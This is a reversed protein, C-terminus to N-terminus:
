PVDRRSRLHPHQELLKAHAEALKASTKALADPSVDAVEELMRKRSKMPRKEFAQLHRAEANTIVGAQFAEVVREMIFPDTAEANILQLLVPLSRAPRQTM